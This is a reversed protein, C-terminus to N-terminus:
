HWLSRICSAIADAVADVGAPTLSLGDAALYEDDRESVIRDLHNILVDNMLMIQQAAINYETIEANILDYARDPLDCQKRDIVPTTTAFILDGGLRPKCADIIHQLNMEYEAVPVLNHREARIWQSDILGANFHAADPAYEDLYEHIRAALDASTHTSQAPGVLTIEVGDEGCLLEAVRGQYALRIDDGLM